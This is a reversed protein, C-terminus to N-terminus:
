FDFLLKQIMLIADEVQILSYRSKFDITFLLYNMNYKTSELVRILSVSDTLISNFKSHFEPLFHGVFNSAPTLIWNYGVVKPREVPPNKLIKWIIYFHRKLKMKSCRNKSFECLKIRRINNKILICVLIVSNEFYSCLVVEFFRSSNIWVLSYCLKISFLYLVATHAKGQHTTQPAKQSLDLSSKEWSCLFSCLFVLTFVSVDVEMKWSILLDRYNWVM